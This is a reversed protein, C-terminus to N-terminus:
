RDLLLHKLLVTPDLEELLLAELVFGLEVGFVLEDLFLYRSGVSQLLLQLLGLRLILIVLLQELRFGRINLIQAHQDGLHEFLVEHVILRM